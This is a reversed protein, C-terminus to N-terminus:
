LRAQDFATGAIETCLADWECGRCAARLSGDTFARRLAAIRHSDLQLVDGVSLPGDLCAGVAELAKADREFTSANGCHAEADELCLPECLDDPGTVIRLLAGRGIAAVVEDMRQVFAPSYGVGKYTLICLLHHGRLSIETALTM